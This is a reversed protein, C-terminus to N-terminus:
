SAAIEEIARRLLTAAAEVQDATRPDTEADLLARDALGAITDEDLGGAMAEEEVSTYVRYPRTAVGGLVLRVDGDARRAAALCISATADRGQASFLRQLGGAAIAPLRVMLVAAKMRSEASSASGHLAFFEDASMRDSGESSSVQFEADLAVMAISTATRNVKWCPGDGIISHLEAGPDKAACTATGSLACMMGDGLRVCKTAPAICDALTAESHGTACDHECAVALLAYPSRVLVDNAIDAIRASAPILLGDGDGFAISSTHATPEIPSM